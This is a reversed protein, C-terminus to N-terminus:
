KEGLILQQVRQKGLPGAVQLAVGSCMWISGVQYLWAKCRNEAIQLRVMQELCIHRVQSTQLWEAQPAVFVDSDSSFLLLM